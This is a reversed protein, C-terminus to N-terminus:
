SGYGQDDGSMDDQDPEASQSGGAASFANCAGQPQVQMKLVACQGDGGFYDCLECRQEDDHYNVAEPTITPSATPTQDDQDPEAAGSAAPSPAASPARKPPAGFGSPAGLDAGLRPKPKGVAISVALGPKQAM